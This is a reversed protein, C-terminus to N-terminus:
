KMRVTLFGQMCSFPHYQSFNKDFRESSQRIHIPMLLQHSDLFSANRQEKPGKSGLGVQSKMLDLTNWHM